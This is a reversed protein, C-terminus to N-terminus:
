YPTDDWDDSKPPEDWDDSQETQPKNWGGNQPAPQQAEQKVFVESAIFLYKSGAKSKRKWVGLQLTPEIGSKGIETLKMIQEKTLTLKGRFDPQNGQKEANIFLVGEGKPQPQYPM